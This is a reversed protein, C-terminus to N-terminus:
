MSAVPWALRDSTSISSCPVTSHTCSDGVGSSIGPALRIKSASADTSAQGALQGAGGDRRGAVVIVYAALALQQDDVGVEGARVAGGGPLLDAFPRRPNEEAVERNGALVRTGGGQMGRGLGCAPLPAEELHDVREVGFGGPDVIGVEPLPCLAEVELECAELRIAAGLSHAFADTAVEFRSNAGAHASGRGEERQTGTTSWGHPPDLM